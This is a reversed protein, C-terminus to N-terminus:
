KGGFGGSGGYGRGGATGSGCSGSAATAFIILFLVLFGIAFLVAAASRRGVPETADGTPEPGGTVEFAAEVAARTVVHSQSWTVETASRECSVIQGGREYDAAQVTEGVQVKWYFEGLVFDVVAAGENRMRYTAGAVAVSRPLGGTDVDAAGLNSTFRLVGEDIVLWRFGHSADYLLYEEWSFREGEISTSRRMYGIVTWAAGEFARGKRGLPLWLSERAQGQQQLVKRTQVESVAGCYRCAVHESQGPALLPLSAGCNPCQIEKVRVAQPGEHGGGRPRIALDELGVEVGAYVQPEGGEGYDITAWAGNPGSLDAFARAAGPKVAFPVEGEASLFTGSSVEVVVYEEDGLRVPQSVRLGAIAPPAVPARQAVTWRGQAEAIWAPVGDEFRVFYEEWTGGAPHQLVIRGVVEFPRERFTGRDGPALGVDSFVVDAVRGLSEFGRDSRVVFHRCHACVVAPTDGLKFDIRAGCSPCAGSANAM